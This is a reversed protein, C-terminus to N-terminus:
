RKEKHKCGVCQPDAYKDTKQYECDKSNRFPVVTRIILGTQSDIGYLVQETLFPPRDFCGNRRMRYTEVGGVPLWVETM